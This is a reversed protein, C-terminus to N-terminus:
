YINLYQDRSKFSYFIYCMLDIMLLYDYNFDVNNDDGNM